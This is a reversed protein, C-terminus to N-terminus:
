RMVEMLAPLPRRPVVGGRPQVGHRPRVGRLNDFALEREGAERRGPEAPAGAAPTYDILFRWDPVGEFSTFAVNATVGPDTQIRLIVSVIGSRNALADDILAGLGTIVHDGLANAEVYAFDLGADFDGGPATWANVGDYKNWTVNETWASPRTCRAIKAGFGGNNVAIIERHLEAENIVAGAMSSVDFNGIARFLDTKSGANYQPGVGLRDQGKYCDDPYLKDMTCDAAGVYITAIPV